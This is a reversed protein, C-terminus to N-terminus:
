LKVPTHGSDLLQQMDAPLAAVIEIYERSRPHPLRIRWAHLAQRTLLSHPEGYLRDGLIPWGCAELHVRVQHTRGTVLECRVLSYRNGEGAPQQGRRATARVAPAPRKSRGPPAPQRRSVAPLTLMSLRSDPATPTSRGPERTGGGTLTSLVEYRTECYAGDSSVVMKRRDEPDRALPLVIRGHRPRPIGRVLALYEKRIRGAHADRQLTAHTAADLAVIVLGSTDKDLRTLIGPRAGASARIHWLVGNLLTGSVQKYTPHVVVGPPKNIALLTEDEYLIDLHHAEARPRVRRTATAPIAVSVDVGARVRSSPRQLIRGDVFVGGNEIWRQIMTRSLRTVDTIHRVLVQDLRLNADGRDTRFRYITTSGM